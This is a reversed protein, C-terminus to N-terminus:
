NTKRRKRSALTPQVEEAEDDTDAEGDEEEEEIDNGVSSSATSDRRGRRSNGVVPRREGSPTSISARKKM